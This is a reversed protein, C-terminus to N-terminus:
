VDEREAENEPLHQHAVHRMSSMQLAAVSRISAAKSSARRQWPERWAVPKGLLDKTATCLTHGARARGCGLQDLPERRVAMPGQNSALKYVVLELDFCESHKWSTPPTRM